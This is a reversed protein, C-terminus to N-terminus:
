GTASFRIPIRIRSVVKEQDRIGPEFKWQKIAELAPQDFEAHTSNEVKPSVVRGQQDVVFVLQVTGEVKRRRLELPYNPAVQFILRPAQDLDGVAFISEAAEGGDIGTGTGGIRGGSALSATGGFGDAGGMTPNLAGELASLSLAELASAAAAPSADIDLTQRMDPPRDEPVAMPEESEEAAAEAVPEEKKEEPKQEDAEVLDVQRVTKETKEETSRMFLAGGFLLLLVHFLIAAAFGLVRM